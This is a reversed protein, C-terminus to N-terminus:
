SIAELFELMGVVELRTAGSPIKFEDYDSREPNTGKMRLVLRYWVEDNPLEEYLWLAQQGPSMGEYTRAALALDRALRVRNEYMALLDPHSWFEEPIDLVTM